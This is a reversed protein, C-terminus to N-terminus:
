FSTELIFVHHKNTPHHSVTTHRKNAPDQSVTIHRKNAPDHSVTTHHENAPDHSVMTHHRNAPDHSETTHHMNVHDHSVTTHHTQTIMHGQGAARGGVMRVSEEQPDTDASRPILVAARPGHCHIARDGDCDRCSLSAVYRIRCM